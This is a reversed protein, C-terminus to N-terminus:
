QYDAANPDTPGRQSMFPAASRILIIEICFMVAIDVNDLTSANWHDIPVDWGPGRVNHRLLPSLFRATHPESGFLRRSFKGADCLWPGDSDITRRGCGVAAPRLSSESNIPRAAPARSDRRRGPGRGSGGAVPARDGSPRPGRDRPSVWTKTCQVNMLKIFTGFTSVNMKKTGADFWKM